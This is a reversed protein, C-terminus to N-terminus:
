PSRASATTLAWTARGEGLSSAMVFTLADGVLARGDPGYAPFSVRYTKSFENTGPYVAGANGSTDLREVRLPDVRVGGAGVLSLRWMSDREALDNHKRWSTSVSVVVVLADGDPGLGARDAEISGAVFREGIARRRAARLSPSELTARMTAVHEVLRYVRVERTWALAADDYDLPAESPAARWELARPTSACGAALLALLAFGTAAACRPATPRTPARHESRARLIV